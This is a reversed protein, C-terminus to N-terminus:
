KDGNGYSKPPTEFLGSLAGAHTLTTPDDTRPLPFSLPALGPPGKPLSPALFAALREAYPYRQRLRRRVRRTQAANAKGRKRLFEIALMFCLTVYAEKPAYKGDRIMKYFKRNTGPKVNTRGLEAVILEHDFELLKKSHAFANRINRIIHLNEMTGEDYIKFAYGAIIKAFFSSLPGNDSLLKSWTDDDNRGFRRRLSVELEHEVFVAGLVAVANPATASAIAATLADEEQPTPPLRSLDRLKLKSQGRNRPM